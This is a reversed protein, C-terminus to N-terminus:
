VGGESGMVRQANREERLTGIETLDIVKFPWTLANGGSRMVPLGMDELLDDAHQPWRGPSIITTLSQPRCSISPSM